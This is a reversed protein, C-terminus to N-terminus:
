LEELAGPGFTATLRATVEGLLHDGNGGCHDRFYVGDEEVIVTADPWQQPAHPNIFEFRPTPDSIELAGPIRRLAARLQVPDSRRFRLRYEISM